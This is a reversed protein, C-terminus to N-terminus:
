KDSEINDGLKIRETTDYLKFINSAKLYEVSHPLMKTEGIFNFRKFSIAKIFLKKQYKLPLFRKEDDINLYEKKGKLVRNCMILKHQNDRIRKDFQMNHQATLYIEMDTKSSQLFFYSSMVNDDGGSKRSDFWLWVEDLGLCINRDSIFTDTKALNLLWDKNILYHPFSLKYNSIIKKGKKYAQYLKYTMYLTKGSNMLGIITTIM